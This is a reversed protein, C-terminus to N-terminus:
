DFTIKGTDYKKTELKIEINEMAIQALYNGIMAMNQVLFMCCIFDLVPNPWGFFLILVYAISGLFIANVLLVQPIMFIVAAMVDGGYDSISKLNYTDKINKDKSYLLYATFIVSSFACWILIKLSIDVGVSPLEFRSTIFAPLAINIASVPAIALLCLVAEKFIRIINFNPLIQTRSNRVNMTCITLIGVLLLLSFVALFLLPLGFQKSSYLYYTAYIPLAFLFYKITANNDNFSEEVADKISAMSDGGANIGHITNYCIKLYFVLWTKFRYFFKLNLAKVVNM